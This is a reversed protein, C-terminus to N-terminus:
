AHGLRRARKKAKRKVSRRKDQATSNKSKGFPAGMHTGGIIPDDMLQELAPMLSFMIHPMKSYHNQKYVM